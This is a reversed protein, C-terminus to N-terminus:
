RERGKSRYVRGPFRWDSGGSSGDASGVWWEGSFKRLVERRTEAKSRPGSSLPSVPRIEAKIKSLEKEDGGRIIARMGERVEELEIIM